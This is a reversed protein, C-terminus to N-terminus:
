VWIYSHANKEKKGDTDSEREGKTYPVDTQISPFKHTKNHVIVFTVM